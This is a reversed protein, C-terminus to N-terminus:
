DKESQLIINWSSSPIYMPTNIYLKTHSKLDFHLCYELLALYRVIFKIKNMIM